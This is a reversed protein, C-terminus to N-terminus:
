PLNFPFSVTPPLQLSFLLSLSGTLVFIWLLRSLIEVADGLPSFFGGPDVFHGRRGEPQSTKQDLM